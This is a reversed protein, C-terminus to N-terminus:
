NPILKPILLFFSFIPYINMKLFSFFFSHGLCEYIYNQPLVQLKQLVTCTPCIECTGIEEKLISVLNSSNLALVVNCPDRYTHPGLFWTACLTNQAHAISPITTRNLMWNASENTLKKLYSVNVLMWTIHKSPLWYM